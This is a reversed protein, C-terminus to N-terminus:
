STRLETPVFSLLGTDRYPYTQTTPCLPLLAFRLHKYQSLRKRPASRIRWGRSPDVVSIETIKPRERYTFGDGTWRTSIERCAVAIKERHRLLIIVRERHKPEGVPDFVATNRGPIHCIFM